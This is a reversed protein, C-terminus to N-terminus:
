AKELLSKLRTLSEAWAARLGDAEARSPIRNHNLTIGVKGGKEALMIDIETDQDTGATRWGWRHDKGERVRVVTIRNGSEDIMGDGDATAKGFWDALGDAHFAAFVKEMPAAISKTSCINYGEPRGDKKVIGNKAEYEVWITTPWWFDGRGFEDLVWNIADRRSKTLDPKSELIGIWEALTKGTVAKCTADDIVQDSQLTVKM